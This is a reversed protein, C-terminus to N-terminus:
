IFTERAGIAYGAVNVGAHIAGVLAFSRALEALPMRYWPALALAIGLV